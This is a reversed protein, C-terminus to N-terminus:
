GIIYIILNYNKKGFMRNIPGNKQKGIKYILIFTDGQFFHRVHIIIFYVM